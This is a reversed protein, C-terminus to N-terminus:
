LIPSGEFDVNIREQASWAFIRYAGQVGAYQPAAVIDYTRFCVISSCMRSPRILRIVVAFHLCNSCIQRRSRRWLSEM